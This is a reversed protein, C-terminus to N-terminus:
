LIIVYLYVFIRLCRVVICGYITIFMSNASSCLMSMCLVESIFLVVEKDDFRRYRLYVSSKM